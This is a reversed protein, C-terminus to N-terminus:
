LAAPALLTLRSNTGGFGDDVHPAYPDPVWREGDVIFVYDHVGPTIPLVVTWVGDPSPQLAYAPQWGTFSGALEVRTANEAQLRFQVYVPTAPMAGASPAGGNPGQWPSVLLLAAVAAAAGLAYVPRWQIRIERADVLARTWGRSRPKAAPQAPELQVQAIRAMVRADVAAPVAADLERRLELAASEFLAAEEREQATLEDVALEGDLYANVRENM